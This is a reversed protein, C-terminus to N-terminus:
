FNGEFRHLDTQGRRHQRDSRDPDGPGVAQFRRQRKVSGGTQDTHVRRDSRRSATPRVVPTEDTLGGFGIQGTGVFCYDRNVTDCNPSRSPMSSVPSGMLANRRRYKPKSIPKKFSAAM